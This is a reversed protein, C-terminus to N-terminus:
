SSGERCRNMELLMLENSCNSWICINLKNLWSAEMHKWSLRGLMVEATSSIRAAIRWDAFFELSSCYYSVTYLM